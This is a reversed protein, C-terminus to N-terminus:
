PIADVLAIQQGIWAMVPVAMSNGIAKYRPGDPTNALVRAEAEPWGAAMLYEVTEAYDDPDRRGKWEILTYDDPFGQLRECERCTLRRVGARQVAMTTSSNSIEGPPSTRLATAVEAESAGTKVRKDSGHLTVAVCPASDGRGDEGAESTLAHVKDGMDGRGNRGIRQQFAYAEAPPTVCATKTANVTPAIDELM